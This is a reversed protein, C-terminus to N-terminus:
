RSEPISPVPQPREIAASSSGSRVLGCRELCCRLRVRGALRIRRVRGALGIRRILWILRILWGVRWILRVLRVFRGPVTVGVALAGLLALTVLFAYAPAMVLVGVAAM